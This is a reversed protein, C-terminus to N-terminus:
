LDPQQPVVVPKEKWFKSRLTAIFLNIDENRLAKLVIAYMALGVITSILAQILIGVFHNQDVGPGTVQLVVYSAAAGIIGASLIYYINQGFNQNESKTGPLKKHFYRWLMIANAIQGISFALPLIIVMGGDVGDIRMLSELFHRFMEFKTYFYILVGVAGLTIAVSLGNIKLPNKTDGVVYYARIMLLVMCQAAVSISFLAVSAAVLRTDNWSFVGAGLLLRVIHARLVIILLSAPVALFLINRTASYLVGLLEKKNGENFLRAMTPFAAVAYSVGIILLPTNEINYSLQFISISGASMLSAIAGIIVFTISTLSSSLTRPLSLAMVRKVLPWDIKRDFSPIRKLNILTPLQVLFHMMAGFVVGIVVGLMGWMPRLFIIGILIGINYFIPAIAFSFFKKHVQAFSSLLSSLGFLIPSLLLVRSFLVLDDRALSDFGPATLITLWPMLIFVTLALLTMGVAFVTFISNLFKKLAETKKGSKEEELFQSIFPILVTVSFLIGFSNYIFDPIRFAAYYVDLDISPGVNSALLRDRLLGFIQSLISFAALVFAAQNMTTVDRNLLKLFKSVM